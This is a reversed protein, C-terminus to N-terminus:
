YGLFAAEDEPHLTEEKEAPLFMPLRTDWDAQTRVRPVFPPKITGESMARWDVDAFFQHDQIEEIGAAMMGLRHSIDVVCLRAVLDKAHLNFDSPYLIAASLIKAHRERDSKSAFPAMGTLMEYVLVGFAWYDASRNYGQCRMVEPAMYDATGCTTYTREGAKLEKCFGMDALKVHGSADMLINEPKLDRYVHDCGHIYGLALLIECAYFRAPGLSLRRVDCLHQFLDGGAMFELVLYLNSRDQFTHLSSIIQPCTWAALVNKEKTVNVVQNIRLMKVKSMIKVVALVQHGTATPVQICAATLAARPQTLPERAKCLYVHGTMGM